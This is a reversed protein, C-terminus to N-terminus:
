TDRTDDDKEDQPAKDYQRLGDDIKHWPAKSGVYIHYGAPLPPHGDIVGMAVYLANPEDDLAVFINSGCSPCFTREGNASSQYSALDGQGSQFQFDSKAVGAFSAYAAGHM